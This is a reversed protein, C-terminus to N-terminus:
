KPIQLNEARYAPFLEKMSRIKVLEFIRLGNDFLSNESAFNSRIFHLESNLSSYTSNSYSDIRKKMKWIRIRGISNEFMGAMLVVGMM